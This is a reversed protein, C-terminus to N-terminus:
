NKCSHVVLYYYIESISNLLVHDLILSKFKSTAENANWLMRKVQLNWLRDIAPTFSIKMLKALLSKQLFWKINLVTMINTSVVKSRIVWEELLLKRNSDVRIMM